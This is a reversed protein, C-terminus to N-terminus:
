YKSLILSSNNGGFGFSNSLVHNIELNKRLRTEPEFKIEEIKETYNLNPFVLNNQITLISIIAEIVGAAALTHGTFPKTSSVLPIRNKFLNGIATGETIDNNDTGTGHANIYEIEEPDLGSIALAESMAQYAGDGEPSSATQHYADNANAYGSIECQIEKNHKLAFEESELILYGAGEGLNLGRRSRDFPRCAEKDLILLSNFGNITFKTLADTGGTIVQDVLGHKIMRVGLMIANASSSCATSITSLYDHIGLQEAIMESHDNCGHTYVYHNYKDNELYDYYYQETKDMGGVTTASILATRNDAHYGASDWAEKAAILGFLTARTSRGNLETKAIQALKQNTYKVEGVPFSDKYQTNLITMPGIGSKGNILSNLTETKNNGISSIIGMGSVVVKNPM